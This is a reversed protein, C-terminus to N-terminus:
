KPTPTLLYKDLIALAQKTRTYIETVEYKVGLLTDNELHHVFLAERVKELEARDCVPAAQTKAAENIEAAISELVDLSAPSFDKMFQYADEDYEIREPLDGYERMLIALTSDIKSM